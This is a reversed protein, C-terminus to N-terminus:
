RTRETRADRSETLVWDMSQDWPQGSIADQWLEDWALAIRLARTARVLCRDFYGAGRGLRTGQPGFALGPVLIWDMESISVPQSNLGPERIGYPGRVWGSADRPSSFYEIQHHSPDVVRPYAVQLGRARLETELLASGDFEGPLASYLGVWSGPSLLNSRFAPALDLFRQALAASRRRVLEPDHSLQALFRRGHERLLRSDTPGIPTM